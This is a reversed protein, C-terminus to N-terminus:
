AGEGDRPRSRASGARGLWSRRAEHLETRLWLKRAREPRVRRVRQPHPVPHAADLVLRLRATGPEAARRSRLIGAPAAGRLRARARAFVLPSVCADRRAIYVVCGGGVVVM